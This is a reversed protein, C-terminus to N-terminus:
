FPCLILSEIYRLGSWFCTCLPSQTTQLNLIKLLEEIERIGYLEFYVCLRLKEPRRRLLPERGVLLSM